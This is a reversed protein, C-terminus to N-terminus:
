RRTTFINERMKDACKKTWVPNKKGIYFLMDLIPLVRQRIATKNKLSEDAGYAEFAADLIVRDELGTFDQSRDYLGADGFDIIGVRPLNNSRCNFTAGDSSCPLLINNYGLDGHCFVLDEGAETMQVPLELTFSNELVTLEEANFYRRLTKKTERYKDLYEETQKEVTMVYPNDPPTINHLEKLFLGIQRGIERKQIDNLTNVMDESLSVGEIGYYGIYNDGDLWNIVPIDVDFKHKGLVNLAAIEYKFYKRQTKDRPFKFVVRGNDVIYVRGCWGVDNYTIRKGDVGTLKKVINLETERM